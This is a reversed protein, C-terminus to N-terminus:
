ARGIFAKPTDTATEFVGILMHADLSAGQRAIFYANACFCASPLDTASGVRMDKTAPDIMLYVDFADSPPASPDIEAMM